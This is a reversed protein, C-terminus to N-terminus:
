LATICIILVYTYLVYSVNIIHSCFTIFLFIFIFYFLYFLISVEPRGNDNSYM